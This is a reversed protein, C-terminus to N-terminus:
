FGVPQNCGNSRPELRELWSPAKTAIEAYVELGLRFQARLFDCFFEPLENPADKPSMVHAMHHCGGGCLYRAWCTGCPARTRPHNDTLFKWRAPEDIGTALAGTRFSAQGLMRHCAYLEGDM